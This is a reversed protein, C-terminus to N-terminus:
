GGSPSSFWENDSIELLTFRCWFDKGIPSCAYVGAEVQEKVKHLHTIRMQVWNQGNYSNELLFDPGNRSIRYWM